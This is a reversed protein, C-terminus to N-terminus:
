RRGGAAADWGQLATEVSSSARSDKMSERSEEMCRWCSEIAEEAAPVIATEDM